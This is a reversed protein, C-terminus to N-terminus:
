GGGEEKKEGAPASKRELLKIETRASLPQGQSQREGIKSATTLNLQRSRELLVGATFDWRATVAGSQELLVVVPAAPDAEVPKGGADMAPEVTVRITGSISAADRDIRILSLNTTGLLESYPNIPARETLTWGDGPRRAIPKGAADPADMRFFHALTRDAIEPMLGALLRQGHPKSAAALQGAEDLGSVNEVTGDPKVDIRIISAFLARTVADVAAAVDDPKDADAPPSPPPEGEKLELRWTKSGITVENRLRVFAALVAAAGTEDVSDTTFRITATTTYTVAPAAQHRGPAAVPFVDTVARLEYVLQRGREFRPLLECSEVGSLPPQALCLCSLLALLVTGM